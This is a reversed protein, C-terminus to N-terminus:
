SAIAAPQDATPSYAAELEFKPM